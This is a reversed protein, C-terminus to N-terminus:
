STVKTQATATAAAGSGTENASVSATNTLTGPKTPTVKITITATAGNALTGVTCTVTGASQTCSGQSSSASQYTEGAPLPDTVKVGTASGPGHNSATITYTLPNGTHVSSPSGTKTLDLDPALVRTTVSDSYIGLNPDTNTASLTATNTITAPKSPTTVKVTITATAGSALSGLNCSVTATGVCSGQSSSVSVFTTATPLPDNVAVGTATGPGVNHVSITYTLTSSLGVPSPSATKEITLIPGLVYATASDSNNRTNPDTQTGAVTATNTVFGGKTTTAKITVTATGGNALAGLTCVVTTTGACSGQTSSVSAFMTTAPLPDTVTM